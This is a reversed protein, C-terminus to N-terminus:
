FLTSRAHTQLLLLLGRQRRPFHNGTGTGASLSMKTNVHCHLAFVSVSDYCKDGVQRASFWFKRDHYTSLYVAYLMGCAVAAVCGFFVKVVRQLFGASSGLHSLM